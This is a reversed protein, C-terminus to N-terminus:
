RRKNRLGLAVRITEGLAASKPFDKGNYTWVTAQVFDNFPGGYNSGNSYASVSIGKRPDKGTTKEFLKALKRITEELNENQIPRGAPRSTRVLSEAILETMKSLISNLYDYEYEFFDLGEDVTGM